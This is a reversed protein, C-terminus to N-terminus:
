KPQFLQEGPGLCHGRVLICIKMESNTGLKVELCFCLIALHFTKFQSLKNQNSKLHGLQFFKIQLHKKYNTSIIRERKKGGYVM